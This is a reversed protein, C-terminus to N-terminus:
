IIVIKGDFRLDPTGTVQITVDGSANVIIAPFVLEYDSGVLEFIQCTPSTGEAHTTALVTYEYMGANLTFSSVTFTTEYKNLTGGGGGGSNGVLDPQGTYPNITIKAM